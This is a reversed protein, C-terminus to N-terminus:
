TRCDSLEAYLRRSLLQRLIANRFGEKRARQLGNFALRHIPCPESLNKIECKLKCGFESGTGLRAVGGARRIWRHCRRQERSQLLLEAELQLRLGTRYINEYNIMYLLRRRILQLGTSM